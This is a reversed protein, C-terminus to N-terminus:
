RKTQDTDHGNEPTKDDELWPIGTAKASRNCYEDCTHETDKTRPNGYDTVSPVTLLLEPIRNGDEASDERNAQKM